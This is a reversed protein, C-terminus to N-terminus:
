RGPSPLRGPTWPAGLKTLLAELEKVGTEALTREAASVEGLQQRAIAYQERQTGTPKAVLARAAGAAVAVREAISMPVNENRERLVADGSLRRVTERHDAILKRV